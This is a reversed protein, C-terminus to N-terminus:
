IGNPHDIVSGDRVELTRAPFKRILDLEHTAMLIATGALNIRLFIEMINETAEPDLNGTPEDGLLLLPDNVLARAISVRQQEGGSLQHPMATERSGLGVRVLLDTVRSRIRSRDKWGTAQMAFRINELVNKEPLLQFDQFVIGLKRRLTPIDKKRIGNTGLGGLLVNGSDPLVDAYILKLLSSKGAGTKGILYCFEGRRISFNVEKLVQRKGYSVSVNSFKLIEERTDPNM